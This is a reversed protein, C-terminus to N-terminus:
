NGDDDDDDDDDDEDEEDIDDSYDFYGDFFPDNCIEDSTPRVKYDATM